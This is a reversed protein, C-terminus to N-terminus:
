VRGSSWYREASGAVAGVEALARGYARVAQGMEITSDFLREIQSEYISIGMIKREIQDTIDAYEPSV